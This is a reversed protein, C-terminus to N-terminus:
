IIPIMLQVDFIDSDAIKLEFENKYLLRLRKNVNDLGM